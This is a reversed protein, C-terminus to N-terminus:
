PGAEGHLRQTNTDKVVEGKAVMEERIPDDGHPLQRYWNELGCKRQLDHHQRWTLFISVDVEKNNEVASGGKAIKAAYQAYSRYPFHLIEIPEM